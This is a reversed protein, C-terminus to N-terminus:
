QWMEKIAIKDLRAPSRVMLRRNALESEVIGDVIALHRSVTTKGVRLAAAVRRHSVCEMRVLEWAAWYEGARRKSEDLVARLDSFDDLNELAPNEPRPSSQIQPRTYDIARLGGMTALLHAYTAAAHEASVYRRMTL